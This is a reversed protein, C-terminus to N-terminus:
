LEYESTKPGTGYLIKLDFFEGMNKKFGEIDGYYFTNDVPINIKTLIDTKNIFLSTVGYNKIEWDRTIGPYWQAIRRPRGTVVGYEKGADRIEKSLNENFEYDLKNNGVYTIYPKVVGYIHRVSFPSIQLSALAFGPHPSSSTVYPYDGVFPDLKAGQSTEILVNNFHSIEYELNLNKLLYDRNEDETDEKLWISLTKGTRLAFDAYAPGIGQKTTGINYKEELKKDIEIHKDLVIPCNPSAAVVIHPYAKMERVLIAPNIVAGAGIFVNHCYIAAGPLQQLKHVKGDDEVVTHGANPGGNSKCVIDYKNKLALYSAAKGKGEDGFQLGVVIDTKM